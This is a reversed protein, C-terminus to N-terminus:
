GIRRRYTSPTQGVTARFSRAFASPSDFGVRTAVELITPGPVALLAMARLLRNHLLYQRWTMGTDAAFRRRLTRESWGVARGAEAATVSALHEGTYRMVAAIVPDSSTPLRLPMEHDLLETVILALAAFFTDATADSATRTITWRAAHLIMERVVPAAPLVRTRDHPGPLMDPAFFVSM